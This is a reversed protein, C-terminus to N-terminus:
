NRRGQERARMAAQESEENDSHNSAGEHPQRRRRIEVMLAQLDQTLWDQKDEMSQRLENFQAMTVCDEIEAGGM